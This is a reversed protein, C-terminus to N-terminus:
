PAQRQRSRDKGARSTIFEGTRRLQEDTGELASAYSRSLRMGQEFPVGLGRMALEKTMAVADPARSGIPRAIRHAEEMLQPAEVNSNILGIRLAEQSDIFGGTLLLMLANGLGVVALLRLAGFGHPLNWKVEPTGFKADPTAIRVDCLLALELGGALSYGNIAAILPKTVPLGRDWRDAHWSEWGQDKPARGVHVEKLDAGASFAHDGVGTIIAARVAPDVEFERLAETIEDYTATDMANMADLRDIAIVGVGDSGEQTITM